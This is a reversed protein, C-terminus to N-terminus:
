ILVDVSGIQRRIRAFLQAIEDPASLDCNYTAVFTARERLENAAITLEEEDRACLVLAAGEDALQRALLLGLGRSGGTIVVLRNRFDYRRSFAIATRVAAYSGAILAANRLIRNWSHRMKNEDM